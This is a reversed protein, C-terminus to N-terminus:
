DPPTVDVSRHWYYEFLANGWEIAAPGESVLDTGFDYKGDTRYLGLSLFKDTVTFATRMKEHTLRLNFNSKDIM